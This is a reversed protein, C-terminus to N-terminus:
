GPSSTSGSKATKFHARDAVNIVPRPWQSSNILLGDSDFINVGAIDPSGNSKSKLIDRMDQTSMQRKFDASSAIGTSRIYAILDKQIVEFEEFEQDFHHALLLVTNELERESSALARERFGSVMIATGLVIAAILLAGGLIHGRISNKAGLATAIKATM